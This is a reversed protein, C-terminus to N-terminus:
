PVPEKEAESKAAGLSRGLGSLSYGFRHLFFLGLSTVVVYGVLHMLTAYVVALDAGYGHHVLMAKVGAEFNGFGGPLSPLASAAAASALVVVSSLLRLPPEFGLARAVVCFSAADSLWLGYSLAAVALARPLSRLSRTGVILERILRHLRPHSGELRRWWEFGELVHEVTSVGFLLLIAAAAIALAGLVLAAPLPSPSWHSVLAFLTFLALVDTLREVLITAMVSWLPVKLTKSTFYGRAFEGLRLLLLNNLGLGVCELRFLVWFSAPAVPALLLVWRLTRLGLDLLMFLVAPVLWLPRTARLIRLSEAVDVNRFAFWLLAGSVAVAAAASLWRKANM